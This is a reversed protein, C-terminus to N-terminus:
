GSGALYVLRLPSPEWGRGEVPRTGVPTVSLWKASMSAACGLFCSYWQICGCPLEEHSRETSAATASGSPPSLSFGVPHRPTYTLGLLPMANGPRCKPPLMTPPNRIIYAAHIHPPLSSRRRPPQKPHRPMAFQDEYNQWLRPEWVTKHIIALHV